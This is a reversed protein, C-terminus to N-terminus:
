ADWGEGNCNDKKLYIIRSLYIWQMAEENTVVKDFFNFEALTNGDNDYAIVRSGETLCGVIIDEELFNNNKDVTYPSNFFKFMM